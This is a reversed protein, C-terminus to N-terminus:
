DNSRVQRDSNYVHQKVMNTLHQQSQKTHNSSSTQYLNLKHRLRQILQSNVCLSSDIISTCDYTNGDINLAGTNPAKEENCEVNNPIYPFITPYCAPLTVCWQHDSGVSHVAELPDPCIQM